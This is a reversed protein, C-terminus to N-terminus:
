VVIKGEEINIFDEREESDGTYYNQEKEVVHGREGLHRGVAMKRVGSRSDTVSRQVERVGGPATRTTTSAQYVKLFLGFLNFTLLITFTSLLCINLAVQPQGDPGTSMTMVSSSSYM